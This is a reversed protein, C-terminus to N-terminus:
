YVRAASKYVNTESNSRTVLRLFLSGEHMKTGYFFNVTIKLLKAHVKSANFTVASVACEVVKRKRGAM